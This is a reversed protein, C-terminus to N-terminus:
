QTPHAMEWRWTYGASGGDADSTRASSVTCVLATCSPPNFVIEPPNNGAPEAQTTVEFTVPASSRGWKDLM